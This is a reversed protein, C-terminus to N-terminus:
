QCGKLKEMLEALEKEVAELEVKLRSSQTLKHVFLRQTALSESGCVVEGRSYRIKVGFTRGSSQGWAVAGLPTYYSFNYPGYIKGRAANFVWCLDGQKLKPDWSQDIEYQYRHDSPKYEPRRSM